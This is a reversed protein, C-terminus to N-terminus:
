GTVWDLVATVPYHDSPFRDQERYRDVDASVVTFHPSVLIWDIPTPPDVSGYGHFSGEDARPLNVQHAVDLLLGRHTM